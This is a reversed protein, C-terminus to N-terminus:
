LRVYGLEQQQQSCPIGYPRASRLAEVDQSPRPCTCNEKCCTAQPQMSTKADAIQIVNDDSRDEGVSQEELVLLSYAM